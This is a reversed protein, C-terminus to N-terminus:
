KRNLENKIMDVIKYPMVNRNVVTVELFRIDDMRRIEQLLPNRSKKNLTMILNKEMHLIERVREVFKKSEMEMKGIEDIVIIDKNMAEDLAKVGLDDLVRIDVGYKGVRYRSQINKSALVATELTSVDILMFGEREDGRIEDTIIGGLTYEEKLLEIVKKVVTTKGSGPVGSIGIKIYM